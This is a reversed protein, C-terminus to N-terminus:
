RGIKRVEITQLIPSFITKSLNCLNQCSVPRIFLLWNPKRFPLDVTVCSNDDNFSQALDRLKDRGVSTTKRSSALCEVTNRVLPEQQIQFTITNVAAQMGPEPVEKCSAPLAHNQPSSPRIPWTNGRTGWFPGNEAWLFVVKLRSCFSILSFRHFRLQKRFASSSTLTPPWPWRPFCDVEM